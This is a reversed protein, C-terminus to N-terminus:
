AATYATCQLGSSSIAIVYAFLYLGSFAAILARDTFDHAFNVRETSTLGNVQHLMVHRVLDAVSQATHALSLQKHICRAGSGVDANKVATANRLQQKAQETLDLDENDDEDLHMLGALRDEEEESLLGSDDSERRARRRRADWDNGM